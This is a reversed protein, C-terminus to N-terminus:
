EPDLHTKKAAQSTLTQRLRHFTLLHQNRLVRSGSRWLYLKDSQETKDELLCHTAKQSLPFVYGRRQPIYMEFGLGQPMGVTGVSFLFRSAKLRGLTLSVYTMM